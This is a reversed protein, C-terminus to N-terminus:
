GQNGQTEERAADELAEVFADTDEADYLRALVANGIADTVAPRIDSWEDAGFDDPDVAAFEDLLEYTTEDELEEGESELRDQWENRQGTTAPYIEVEYETGHIEVTETVPLLEGDSGRDHVAETISPTESM